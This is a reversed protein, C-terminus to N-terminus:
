LCPPIRKACEVVHLRLAQTISRCRLALSLNRFVLDIFAAFAQQYNLSKQQEQAWHRVLETYLATRETVLQRGNDLDSSQAATNNEAILSKYIESPKESQLLKRIRTVAEKEFTKAAKM